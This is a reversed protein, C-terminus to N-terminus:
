GVRIYAHSGPAQNGTSHGSGGGTEVTEALTELMDQPLVENKYRAQEKALKTHDGKVSPSLCFKVPDVAYYKLYSWLHGLVNLTLLPFIPTPLKRPESEEENKIVDECLAYPSICTLCLVLPSKVLRHALWARSM